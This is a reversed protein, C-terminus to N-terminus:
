KKLKIAHDLVQTSKDRGQVDGKFYEVTKNYTPQRHTMLYENYM